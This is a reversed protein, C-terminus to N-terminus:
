RAYDVEVLGEKVVRGRVDHRTDPNIVRVMDGPNGADAAVLTAQVEAGDVMTVVTVHDGPEVARRLAVAGPMVIAGEPVPRLVRGGRVQPMSLVRRLPVGRLERRVIQVDGEAVTQGRDVARTTVVVGATVRLTAVAMVSSGTETVLAIRMPRGLWGGPDPRAERFTAPIGPKSPVDLSLVVVDADGGIRAAIAQRILADAPALDAARVSAAASIAAAFVVLLVVSARM